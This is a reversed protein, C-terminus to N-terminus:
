GAERRYDALVAAITRTAGAVGAPNTHLYYPVFIVAQSLALGRARAWTAEDAGLAARFAARSDGDFLAWACFLDCAPDGVGLGGWDIVASLRGDVVLLNGPLLDGHFWVPGRAWAPVGLAAEWVRTALGADIMGMDGMAAIAARTAADRTVLPAGRLNHEAVPPGGAPDIRQLVVIFRALDLAARRPDALPASSAPAGPLWRYVAWPYPYGAAPVGAALPEPHRLPLHPALRPLWAREKAAQGTAWHIRPLRVAKDDGLRFIAHDTGASPVPALPLEAWQPFQAALLRRVLGADIPVEDAHM